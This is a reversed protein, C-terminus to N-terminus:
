RRPLNRSQQKRREEETVSASRSREPMLVRSCTATVTVMLWGRRPFRSIRRSQGLPMSDKIPAARLMSEHTGRSGLPHAATLLLPERCTPHLSLLDCQKLVQWASAM